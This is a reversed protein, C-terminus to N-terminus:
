HHVEHEERTQLSLRVVNNYLLLSSPTVQRQWAQHYGEVNEMAAITASYAAHPLIAATRM